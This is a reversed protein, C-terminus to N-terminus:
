WHVTIKGTSKRSELLDHAETIETAKFVGGIEAKLHGSEVLKIVEQMCYQIMEAKNDGIKLMNVGIVSKSRMMMTIPLIAGMKRVFNLTSLIGWKKGSRESGGFLLIRGGSGILQYDKKFTSGAIPNFTGDLRDGELLKSIVEFYDKERYNIVHDAGLKTMLALKRESGATAYVICGKAKLLQILASGVGGAGAHVLVRNGPFFNTIVTSMYYATVFQTAICLAVDTDMDGILGFGLQNVKAYEAYGGFRTFAIVRKGIFDDSINTGVTHIIGVVEYGLVSPLAPAERYLGNRAMVDAYNLGFADVKVIVEDDEPLPIAIDRIEFAEKSVGNKILHVAKM